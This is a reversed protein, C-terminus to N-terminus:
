KAGGESERALEIASLIASRGDPYVDVEDGECDILELCSEDSTCRLVIEWGDPLRRCAEAIHNAADILKQSEGAQSM